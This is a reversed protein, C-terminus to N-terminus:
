GGRNRSLAERIAEAILRRLERMSAGRPALLGGPLTRLWAKVVKDALGDPDPLYDSARLGKKPDLEKSSVTGVIM